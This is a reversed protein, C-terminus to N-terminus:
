RKKRLAPKKPKMAAPKQARHNEGPFTYTRLIALAGDVNKEKPPPNKRRVEAQHMGLIDKITAAM